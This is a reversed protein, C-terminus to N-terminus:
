EWVSIWLVDYIPFLSMFALWRSCFYATECGPTGAVEESFGVLAVFCAFLVWATEVCHYM